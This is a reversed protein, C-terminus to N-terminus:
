EQTPFIAQLLSLSGMGTNQLIGHVSSGPLSHPRLSDSVVSHNESEWKLLGHFISQESYPFSKIKVLLLRVSWIKSNQSYIHNNGLFLQSIWHGYSILEFTKKKKKEWSTDFSLLSIPPFYYLWKSYITFVIFCYLSVTEINLYRSTYRRHIFQKLIILKGPPVLPLSGVLCYLLCSVQTQDRPGSSGRSSPM